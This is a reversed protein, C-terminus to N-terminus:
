ANWDTGAGNDEWRVFGKGCVTGSVAPITAITVGVSNKITQTFGSFNRIQITSGDSAGTAALTYIRTASVTGRIVLVNGQTVNYTTDANAAYISTTRIRGAGVLVIEDHAEATSSLKLPIQCDVNLFGTNGVLAGTSTFVAGPTSVSIANANVGASFQALGVFQSAKFVNGAGGLRSGDGTVVQDALITGGSIDFLGTQPTRAIHKLADLYQSAGVRDPLNTPTIFSDVLLSQVFGLWDNVLLAEWPTGTGDGSVTVNRAKGYPYDAGGAIVQAPYTLTLNLAM